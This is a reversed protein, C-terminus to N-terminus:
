SLKIPCRGSTNPTAEEKQELQSGFEYEIDIQGDAYREVTISTVKKGKFAKPYQALLYFKSQATDTVAIDKFEKSSAKFTKRNKYGLTYEAMSKTNKNTINFGYWSKLDFQSIDKKAKKLIFLLQNYIIDSLHWTQTSKAENRYGIIKGNDLDIM